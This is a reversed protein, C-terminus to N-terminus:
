GTSLESRSKGKTKPKLRPKERHYIEHVTSRAKFRFETAVDGFSWGADILEVIKKNRETKNQM